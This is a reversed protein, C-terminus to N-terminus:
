FTVKPGGRGEGGGEGGWGSLFLRHASSSSETHIHIHAHPLAPHVSPVKSHPELDPLSKDKCRSSGPRTAAQNRILTVKGEQKWMRHLVDEDYLHTLPIAGARRHWTMSIQKFAAVKIVSFFAWKRKAVNTQCFFDTM